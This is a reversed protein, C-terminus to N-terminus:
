VMWSARDDSATCVWVMGHSLWSGIYEGGWRVKELFANAAAAHNQGANLAANYSVTVRNGDEDSAIIRSGRANTPGHYTTKFAKM